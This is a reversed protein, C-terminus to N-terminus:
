WQMGELVARLLLGRVQNIPAGARFAKAARDSFESMQMARLICDRLAQDSTVFNAVFLPWGAEGRLSRRSLGTTKNIEAVM